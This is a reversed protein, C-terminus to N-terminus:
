MVLNQLAETPQRESTKSFISKGFHADGRFYAEQFWAEGRFTTEIFWVENAFAVKEFKASTEFKTRIFSSNGAFKAEIFNAPGPFVFESFEANGFAHFSFDASAEEKWEDSDDRRTLIETAWENWSDKGQQYLAVSQDKNM